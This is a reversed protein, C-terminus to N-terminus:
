ASRHRAQQAVVRYAAGSCCDPIGRVLRRHYESAYYSVAWCAHLSSHLDKCMYKM